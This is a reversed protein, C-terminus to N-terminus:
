LNGVATNTDGANSALAEAGIGVNNSGQNFRLSFSGVAINTSGTTIDRMSNFGLATNDSGSTHRALALSGVATNQSGTINDQLSSTGVGTNGIGSSNDRLSEYGVATNRGGTNNLLSDKGLITNRNGQDFPLDDWTIPGVPGGGGAGLLQFSQTGTPDLIVSVIQGTKLDGAALSQNGNRFIPKPGVGDVDLTVDPSGVTNDLHVRFNVLMGGRYPNDPTPTLSATYATSTGASPGAYYAAGRELNNIPTQLELIYNSEIIDGDTFNSFPTPM